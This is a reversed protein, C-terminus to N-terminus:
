GRRHQDDGNRAFLEAVHAQLRYGRRRQFQEFLDPAWGTTYEYSDHYM